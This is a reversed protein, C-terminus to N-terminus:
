SIREAKVYRWSLKYHAVMTNVEKYEVSPKIVLWDGNVDMRVKIQYKMVIEDRPGIM